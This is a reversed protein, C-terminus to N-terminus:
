EIGTAASTTGWGYYHPRKFPLLSVSRGGFRGCAHNESIAQWMHVLLHEADHDRSRGAM